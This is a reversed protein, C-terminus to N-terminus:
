KKEKYVNFHIIQFNGYIINTKNQEKRSIIRRSFILFKKSSGASNRVFYFNERLSLMPEKDHYQGENM